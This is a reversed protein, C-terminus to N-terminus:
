LTKLLELAELAPPSSPLEKVVRELEKRAQPKQGLALYSRALKVRASAELVASPKSRLYDNLVKIAAEHAGLEDQLLSALVPRARAADDSTGVAIVQEYSGRAGLADKTLRQCDALVRWVAAQKRHENAARRLEPLLTACQNTAAGQRWALLQAQSVPKKAPTPAPAVEEVGADLVEPLPAPEDDPEGLEAFGVRSFKTRTARTSDLELQEGGGVEYQAGQKSVRVLGEVVSVRVGSPQAEVRFRTGVVKVEYEGSRVIFSSGAARKKVSAAVSGRLLKLEVRTPSREAVEVASGATLGLVDDGLVERRADTTAELTALQPPPTVPTEPRPRLAFVLAVAAAAALVVGVAIRPARGPGRARNLLRRTSLEDPPALHAATENAFKASFSRWSTILAQCEACTSLHQEFAAREDATLRGDLYLQAHDHESM